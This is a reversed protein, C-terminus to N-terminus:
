MKEAKAKENREAKQKYYVAWSLADLKQQGAKDFLYIGNRCAHNEEVDAQLRELDEYSHQALKVRNWGFNRPLKM